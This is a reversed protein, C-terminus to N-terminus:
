KVEGMDEEINKYKYCGRLKKYWGDTMPHEVVKGALSYAHLIRMPNVQTIFAIHQPEIDFAFILCDGIKVDKLDILYMHQEVTKKFQLASPFKDYGFVDEVEDGLAISVEVPLAACDCGVNKLRGGHHFPTNLWTIAEPIILSRKM